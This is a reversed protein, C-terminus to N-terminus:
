TDHQSSENSILQNSKFIQINQDNANLLYSIPYNTNKEQLSKNLINIKNNGTIAIFKYPIKKIAQLSLGIRIFPNNKPTTVIYKYRYNDDIATELEDCDPFISATHGDEGMGLIAIDIDPIHEAQILMQPITLNLNVLGIFEVNIAKNILLYKKVLAQNSNENEVDVIREDVLTIVVKSWDLNTNSLLKFLKIPSKGGSVALVVHGKSKIFEQIKQTLNNVLNNIQKDEDEFFHSTIVM